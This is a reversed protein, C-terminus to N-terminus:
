RGPRVALVVYTGQLVTYSSAAPLQLNASSNTTAAPSSFVQVPVLETYGCCSLRVPLPQSLVLCLCRRVVGTM